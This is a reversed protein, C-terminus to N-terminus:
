EAPEAVALPAPWALAEVVQMLRAAQADPGAVSLFADRAAAFDELYIEGLGILRQPRAEPRRRQRLM